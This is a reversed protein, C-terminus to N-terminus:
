RRWHHRHWGWYPGYYPYAYPGYYPYPEVVVPPEQEVIVPPSPPTALCAKFRQDCKLDCRDRNYMNRPHRNACREYCNDNRSECALEHRTVAFSSACIISSLVFIRSFAKMTAEM